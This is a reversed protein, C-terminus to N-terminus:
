VHVRIFHVIRLISTCMIEHLLSENRHRYIQRHGMEEKRIGHIHKQLRIHVTCFLFKQLMCELIVTNEDRISVKSWHYSQCEEGLTVDVLLVQAIWLFNVALRRISSKLM